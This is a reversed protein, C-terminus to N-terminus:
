HWPEAIALGHFLRVNDPVFLREIREKHRRLLGYWAVGHREGPDRVLLLSVIQNCVQSHEFLRRCAWSRRRAVSDETLLGRMPLTAAFRSPKVSGLANMATKRPQGFRGRLERRDLRFVRRLARLIVRRRGTAGGEAATQEWDYRRDASDAIVQRSSQVGGLAIPNRECYRLISLSADLSTACCRALQIVKWAM